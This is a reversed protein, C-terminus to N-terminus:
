ITPEFSFKQGGIAAGAMLGGKAYTFTAMGKRYGGKQSGADDGSSAAGASSGTTSAQAAAGATIVVASAEAGFEFNGSTFSDYASQDEFFVVQSFAQGGAQLGISAQTVSSTGTVVGNVYVRGKGHAGGVIFGGKGVTPFLAYGYASDFFPGVTDSKRFAAMAEEFKADEESMPAADAPKAPAPQEMAQAPAAQEMAQAPAAQAEAEAPVSPETAEPAVDATEPASEIVDPSAQEAEQSCGALILTACIASLLM